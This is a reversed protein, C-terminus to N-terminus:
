ATHTEAFAVGAPAPLNGDRQFNRRAESAILMAADGYPIRDTNIVLHYLLDDNISTHFYAQAYRRSGRDEKRIFRTAEEATLGVVKSIREIRNPLSAVLRVHFVGPLKAAVATAGRGVVIVHGQQVLHLITEAVQPVLVWSPPRLGFMEDLIDDVYSRADEPMYKALRAPLNHEDLAKQVLERDFLKWKAAHNTESQQLIDATREAIDHAGSGTLQSITIAPVLPPPHATDPKKEYGFQGVVLSRSGDIAINTNM